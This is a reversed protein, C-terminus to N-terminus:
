EYRLATIPDLRAARLAPYLGFSVGTLLAVGFSLPISEPALLAAGQNLMAALPIMLIGVVIGAFGSAASLLIAELLFQLVIDRRTAGMALRVGIERTRETVSVLMVNMIGIGGVTLSVVAMATLLVSFTRAAEQQAGLLDQKTTLSFDDEYKGESDPMIAHESRLFSSIQQKAENMLEPKDIIATVRVSPAKDYLNKIASGIPIFIGENSKGNVRDAPNVAETEVLIGIVTYPKRNIWISKGLAEEAPFLDDATQSALVCVDMDQLVEAPTYFRGDLLFDEPTLRRDALWGVPQVEGSSALSAIVSATTGSLPADVNYRNRRLKVSRSVSMEVDRVLAAKEPLLLGEVYTLPKGKEQMEGNKFEMEAAIQVQDSGLFRFSAEVAARAGNGLALTMIVSAVGIMVGLATLTARLSNATIGRWAT